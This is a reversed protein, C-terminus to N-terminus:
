LDFLSAAQADIFSNGFTPGASPVLGPIIRANVCMILGMEDEEAKPCGPFMANGDSLEAACGSVLVVLAGSFV